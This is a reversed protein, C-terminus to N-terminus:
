KIRWEWGKNRHFVGGVPRREAFGLALWKNLTALCASRGRGLRNEITVTGVWEGRMVKRYRAIAKAQKVANPITNDPAPNGSRGTKKEEGAPQYQSLPTVKQSLMQALNM